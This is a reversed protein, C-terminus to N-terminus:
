YEYHLEEKLTKKQRTKLKKDDYAAARKEIERFLYGSPLAALSPNIRM